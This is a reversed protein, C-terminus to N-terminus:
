FWLDHVVLSAFILMGYLSIFCLHLMSYFSSRIKQILNIRWETLGYLRLAVEDVRM